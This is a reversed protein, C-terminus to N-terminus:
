ILRTEPLVRCAYVTQVAVAFVAPALLVALTAALAQLAQERVGGLGEKPREPLSLKDTGVAIAGSSVLIIEHGCGGLDSLVRILHEMSQLNMAGSDHTLTSTGVKVVIRFGTKQWM